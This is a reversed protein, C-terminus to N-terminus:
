NTMLISFPSFHFKLLQLAHFCWLHLFPNSVSFSTSAGKNSLLMWIISIVTQCSSFSKVRPTGTLRHFSRTYQLLFFDSIRSSFKCQLVFVIKLFTMTDARIEHYPKVLRKKYLFIIDFNAFFVIASM